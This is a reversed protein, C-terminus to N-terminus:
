AIAYVRASYGHQSNINVPSVFIIGGTTPLQKLNNLVEVQYNNQTLWYNEAVASGNEALRKGSDTHLTEHGIATIHREEHLFALADKSWGPTHSVEANDKNLFAKKGGARKSWNSAFAVFSDAPIRGNKDEYATIVDPTLEFDCNDAVANELHLVYLPLIFQNLDLGSFADDNPNYRIPADVHTSYRVGDYDDNAHAGFVQSTHPVTHTLDYHKGKLIVRQLHSQQLNSITQM